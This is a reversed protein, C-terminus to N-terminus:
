AIEYRQALLIIEALTSLKLKKLANSRFVYATKPSIHLEVAITNISHGKALYQFVEFERNTLTRLLNEKNSLKDLAIQRSVHNSIYKDGRVVVDITNTLEEPACRKSLFADAGSDFSKTIFPEVENVSLIIVKLDSRIHKLKRTTKLGDMGEMNIDVVAVDLDHHRVYDIAAHGNDFKAVIDNNKDETLLRSFGERVVEHDDLLMIKIKNM